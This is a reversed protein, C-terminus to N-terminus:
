KEVEGLDSLSLSRVFRLYHIFTKQINGRAILRSLKVEEYYGQKARLEEIKIRGEIEVITLYAAANVGYFMRPPQTKKKDNEETSM